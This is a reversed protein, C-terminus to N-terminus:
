ERRDGRRHSVQRTPGVCYRANYRANAVEEHIVPASTVVLAAAPSETWGAAIGHRKRPNRQVGQTRQAGRQSGQPFTRTPWNPPSPTQLRMAQSHCCILALM